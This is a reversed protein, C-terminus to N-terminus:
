DKQLTFGAVSGAPVALEYASDLLSEWPWWFTPAGIEDKMTVTSTDGERVVVDDAAETHTVVWGDEDLTAFEVTRGLFWHDEGTVLVEGRVPVLAEVSTTKTTRETVEGHIIGALMLGIFVVVSGVGTYFLSFVPGRDKRIATYIYRGIDVLLAAALVLLLVTLFNM